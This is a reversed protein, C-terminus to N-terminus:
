GPHIPVFTINPFEGHMKRLFWNIGAKSIGYAAVPVPLESAFGVSGLLSTTVFFRPNSAASLLPEVAQFLFIPGLTNAQYTELFDKEPIETSKHLGTAIGANAIVVDVHSIGHSKITSVAAENDSKKTADLKLLILKSGSGTEFRQLETAASANTDRVGAFVTTQPRKLLGQVLGRGIGRASGTIM